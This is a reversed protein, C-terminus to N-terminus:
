ESMLKNKSEKLEITFLTTAKFVKKYTFSGVVNLDSLDLYIKSLRRGFFTQSEKIGHGANLSQSCINEM